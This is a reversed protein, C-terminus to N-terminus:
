FSYINIKQYKPTQITKTIFIYNSISLITTIIRIHYYVFVIVFLILLVNSICKQRQFSKSILAFIYGTQFLKKQLNTKRLQAVVHQTAFMKFLNALYFQFSYDFWFTSHRDRNDPQRTRLENCNQAYKTKIRNSIKRGFHVHM